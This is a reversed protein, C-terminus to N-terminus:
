KLSQFRKKALRAPFTDRVNAKFGKLVRSWTEGQEFNLNPGGSNASTLGDNRGVRTGALSGYNEPRPDETRIGAGFTLAGNITLQTDEGLRWEAAQLPAAGAAIGLAATAALAKNM